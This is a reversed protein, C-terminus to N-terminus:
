QQTQTWTFQIGQQEMHERLRQLEEILYQESHRLDQNLLMAYPYNLLNTQYELAITKLHPHNAQPNDGIGRLFELMWEITLHRYLPHPLGGQQPLGEEGYEPAPVFDEDDAEWLEFIRLDAFLSLSKLTRPLVDVPLLMPEELGGLPNRFLRLPIILTELSPALCFGSQISVWFWECFTWDEESMIEISLHRLNSMEKPGPWMPQSQEDPEEPEPNHGRHALVLSSIHPFIFTINKIDQWSITRGSRLDLSNITHRLSHDRQALLLQTDAADCSLLFHHPLTLSNLWTVWLIASHSAFLKCLLEHWFEEGGTNNYEPRIAVIDRLAPLNLPREFIWYEASQQGPSWMGTTLLVALTELNPLLGQHRSMDKPLYTELEQFPTEDEFLFHKGLSLTLTRLKPTKWLVAVLAKSFQSLTIAEPDGGDDLLEQNEVDSADFYRYVSLSEIHEGLEPSNKLTRGLCQLKYPDSIAIVRYLYPKVVADMQKTVRCLNQLNNLGEQASQLVDSDASGTQAETHDALWETSKLIKVILEEPLHILTRFLAHADSQPKDRIALQEM